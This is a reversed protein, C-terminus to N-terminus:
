TYTSIMGEPLRETTKGSAVDIAAISRLNGQRRIDDWALFPDKSNQVFVPGQTMNAFVDRVKKRWADTHTAVIVSKGDASWRIDSSEAVYKGAPLKLTTTKKSARDWIVPELVDGNFILMALRGDPSWRVNRVPRKDKFV